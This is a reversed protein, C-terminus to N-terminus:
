SVAHSGSNYNMNTMFILTRCLSTGLFHATADEIFALEDSTLEEVYDSPNKNFDDGTWAISGSARDPFGAPVDPRLLGPM